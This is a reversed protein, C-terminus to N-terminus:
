RIFKYGRSIGVVGSLALVYIKEVDRVSARFADLKDLSGARQVTYLMPTVVIFQGRLIEC